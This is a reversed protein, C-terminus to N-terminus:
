MSQIDITGETLQKGNNIHAIWKDIKRKFASKVERYTRRDTDGGNTHSTHRDTM